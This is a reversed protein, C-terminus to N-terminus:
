RPGQMILNEPTYESFSFGPACVGPRNLFDRQGNRLTDGPPSKVRQLAERCSRGLFNQVVACEVMGVLLGFTFM